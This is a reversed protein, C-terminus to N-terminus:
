HGIHDTERVQSVRAELAAHRGSGLLRKPPRHLDVRSRGAKRKCAVLGGLDNLGDLTSAGDHAEHAERVLIQELSYGVDALLFLHPDCDGVYESVLM